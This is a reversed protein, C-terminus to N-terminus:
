LRDSGPGSGGTWTISVAQNSLQSTQNVTISLGAFPSNAGLVDSASITKASSTPPLSADTGQSGEVTSGGNPATVASATRPSVALLVISCAGVALVRAM